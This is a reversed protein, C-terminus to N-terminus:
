VVGHACLLLLGSARPGVNAGPPVAEPATAVPELKIRGPSVSQGAPTSSSAVQRHRWTIADGDPDRLSAGDFTYGGGLGEYQESGDFWIVVDMPSVKSRLITATHFTGNDDVECHLM